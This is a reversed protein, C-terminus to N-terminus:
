WIAKLQDLESTVKPNSTIATKVRSIEDDSLSLGSSKITGEPDALLKKRFDADITARGVLRELDSSM